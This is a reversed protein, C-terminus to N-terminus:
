AADTDTPELPSLRTCPLMSYLTDARLGTTVIPSRLTTTRWSNLPMRGTLVRLSQRSCNPRPRGIFRVTLVPADLPLHSNPPSDRRRSAQVRPAASAVSWNLSGFGTSNSLRVMLPPAADSVTRPSALALMRDALTVAPAPAM